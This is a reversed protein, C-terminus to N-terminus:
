LDKIFEIIRECNSPMLERKNGQKQVRLCLAVKTLEKTIENKFYPITCAYLFGGYCVSSYTPNDICVRVIVARSTQPLPLLRALFFPWIIHLETNLDIIERQGCM